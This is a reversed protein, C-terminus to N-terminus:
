GPRGRERKETARECLEFTREGWQLKQQLLVTRPKEGGRYGYSGSHGKELYGEGPASRLGKKKIQSKKIPPCGSEKGGRAIRGRTHKSGGEKKLGTKGGQTARPERLVKQNRGQKVSQQRQGNSSGKGGM